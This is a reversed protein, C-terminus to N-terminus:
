FDSQTLSPFGLLLFIIGLVIITRLLITDTYFSQNIIDMIGPAPVINNSPLPSLGSVAM